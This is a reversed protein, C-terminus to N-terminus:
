TMLAEKNIRVVLFVQVALSFSQDKQAANSYIKESIREIWSLFNIFWQLQYFTDSLSKGKKALAEFKYTKLKNWALWIKM